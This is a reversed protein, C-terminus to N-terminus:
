SFILKLMFLAKNTTFPLIGITLTSNKIYGEGIYNGTCYVSGYPDTAVGIAKEEGGSDITLSDIHTGDSRFASIFGAVGFSARLTRLIDGKENKIQASGTYSGCIYVSGYLDCSVGLGEDVGSSDIVRSWIYNGSTDLKTIFSGQGSPVPFVNTLTETYNGVIYVNGTSDCTITNGSGISNITKEWQKEGITNLKTIISIRRVDDKVGTIFVNGNLDCTVGNIMARACCYIIQSYVHAGNENFKTIFSKKGLSDFRLTALVSRTQSLIKLDAREYMGILYVNGNGDCAVGTCTEGYETTESDLIRSWKHNGSTDFKTIFAAQAGTSSFFTTLQENKENRISVTGIYSGCVYVNNDMDCTLGNPFVNVGNINRTWITNGSTDFKSVFGRQANYGSIYTNGLCDCIVKKADVSTITKYYQLTSGTTVPSGPSCTNPKMVIPPPTGPSGTTGPPPPTGPSGTTVPPPPTGPSGTTGPPPPTGPSGTTGPPPPTGPPTGPPPPTGPSGTTGTSEKERFFLLGIFVISIIIIIIGFIVLIPTM